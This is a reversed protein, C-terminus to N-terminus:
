SRRVAHDDVGNRRRKRDDIVDKITVYLHGLVMFGCAVFFGIVFAKDSIIALVM